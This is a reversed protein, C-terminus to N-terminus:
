KEDIEELKPITITATTGEDLESTISIGYEEGYILKIRESVNRVGIGSGRKSSVVKNNMIYDIKEATMGLGNDAVEIHIVDEKEYVNIHIEGDEFMGEMGHYIANELLPQISLKPCLYKLLTEDAHVCFEFKDKFRINQIALYSTAHELEKELPIMDKGQSLSTRFFKALLSVMEEAGKYEGSQIMWIISDLTNYLFHPNIQSQLLKKEMKRKERENNRIEDMQKQLRDAMRNFQESLVKLEGIGDESAKVQYNGKGFEKMTRMLQYVPDTINRFLLIDLVILAIGVLLLMLWAMYYISLNEARINALSNVVIIKWGTYGIQQKEIVWKADEYIKVLYNECEPLFEMTKEEYLDSQIAKMFPHYILQNKEDLLYCYETKKNRYANLITEVPDTYYQVRLVGSKMTGQDVYEIHRSVPFAHKMTDAFVLEKSGFYVIEISETAEAFWDAGSAPMDSMNESHWICNGDVDYLSIGHVRDPASQIVDNLADSFADSHFDHSRINQYYIANTFDNIEEIEREIGQAMATKQKGIEGVAEEVFYGSLFHSFMVMCSIMCLVISISMILPFLIRISLTKNGM